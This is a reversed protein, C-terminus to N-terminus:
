WREEWGTGFNESLFIGAVNSSAVSDSSAVAVVVLFVVVAEM